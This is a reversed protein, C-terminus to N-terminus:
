CSQAHETNQNKTSQHYKHFMARSNYRDVLGQYNTMMVSCCAVGMTVTCVDFNKLTVLYLLMAWTGGACAISGMSCTRFITVSFYKSRQVLQMGEEGFSYIHGQNFLIKVACHMGATTEKYYFQFKLSRFRVEAYFMGTSGTNNTPQKKIQFGPFQICGQM